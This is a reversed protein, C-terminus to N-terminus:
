LSLLTPARQEAVDSIIIQRSQTFCKFFLWKREAVHRIPDFLSHYRGRHSLRCSGLLVSHQQSLEVQDGAGIDEEQRDVHVGQAIDPSQQELAVLVNCTKYDFGALPLSPFLFSLNFASVMARLHVRNNDVGTGSEWRQRLQWLRHTQHRGERGEPLGRQGSIHDRWM